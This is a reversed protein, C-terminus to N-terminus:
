LELRGVVEDDEIEGTPVFGIGRYFAAPGGPVDSWSTTLAERGESRLREVLIQLARSGIGRGQHRRDILLRWLYPLPHADTVETTMIFGAPAGDAYIGRFWPVVPVDNYLEPVLADAFSAAMPAVMQEQFKFTRLRYIERENEPTIERLEVVEVPSRNRAQWAEWDERLLAFRADDLWEGRILEHRRAIGEFEFGLPEIVRMSAFNVPDLTAVIRHAHTHTFIADVMAAAAESSYGKRQHEVPLTYGIFPVHGDRALNVAIDGVMVGDHEIAVSVWRDIV